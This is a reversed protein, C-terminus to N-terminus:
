VIIELDRLEELIANISNMDTAFPSALLMRLNDCLENPDRLKQKITRSNDVNNLYSKNPLCMRSASNMIKAHKNKSETEDTINHHQHQQPKQKEQISAIATLPKLAQEVDQEHELRNTLTKEFKNRIVNQTASLKSM